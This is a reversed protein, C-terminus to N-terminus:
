SYLVAMPESRMENRLQRPSRSFWRQCSRTLVSTESYGLREAIQTLSVSKDTLSRLAIERRVVDIIEEFTTGEARLGRQLTRPHMGLMSAVTTQNCRDGVLLKNLIVRVQRSLPVASVPFRLDIFSEAMQFIQTDRNVIPQTLSDKSFYIANYPMGFKVTTSFFEAYHKLSAPAGHTIWIETPQSKRCSLVRIANHALGLAHEVVQRQRPVGDLLIDFLMYDRGNWEDRELSIHIAESYVHLYKACYSLADRLSGANKMAVGLPGLVTLADGTCEAMRLGFDPCSLEVATRELLNIMTRYLLLADPDNLAAPNIGETALLKNPDGGLARVAQPFSHRIADARVFANQCGSRPKNNSAPAQASKYM